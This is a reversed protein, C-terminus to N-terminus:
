FAPGTSQRCMLRPQIFQGTLHETPENNIVLMLLELLRAGIAFAPPRLTTLPPSTYRALAIDDYGIISVDHGVRLGREQVALIAGIAMRDNNCLIATPPKPHALLYHAAHYGSDESFDGEIVLEPDVPLRAKQMASNFGEWRLQTLLMQHPPAVYAIRQHGLGVLHNVALEFGYAFDVDLWNETISSDPRGFIVFPFSQESLFTVRPDNQCLGIVILGDTRKETVIARYLELQTDDASTVWYVLGVGMEVAASALGEILDFAFPDSEFREQLGRPAIRIFGITNTRQTNLTRAAALPHYNLAEIAALVRRRTDEKVGPYDNLVNSVTGVSVNAKRAVDRITTM